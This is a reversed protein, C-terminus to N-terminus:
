VRMELCGLRRHERDELLCRRSPMKQVRAAKLNVPTGSRCKPRSHVYEVREYNERGNSKERADREARTDLRGRPDQWAVGVVGTDYGAYCLAGGRGVAGVLLSGQGDRGRNVSPFSQGGRRLATRGQTHM